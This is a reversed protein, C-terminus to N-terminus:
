GLGEALVRALSASILQPNANGSASLKAEELASLARSAGLARQRDGSESARRAHDHVLVTLADLMESFFGRAKSGGMRLIARMRESRAGLAASLFARAAAAAEDRGASGILAGPIGAAARLREASASGAKREVASESAFRRMEEDSLPTARLSVVRSRITPLLAGPESSTIVITTHPPPEELLKLFANAAADSGEQPVMREADGIVFVKRKGMSPTLAAQQVIARVTHVYIAEAGSPRTYVGGERLREQIADMYDDAVDAATVDSDKLRPRPFYWHLDPHVVDLAYRCSTCNGCPETGPRACLLLQALWLALRQKGVGAPGHILLSAPLTERAVARALRERLAAHGLLPLLSM